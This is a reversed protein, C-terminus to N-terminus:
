VAAILKLTRLRIALNRQDESNSGIQAPSILKPFRFQFEWVPNEPIVETSFWANIVAPYGYGLWDKGTEVQTGNLTVDMGVVIEPEMADVIDLQVKYKGSRLSPVKISSVEGPGAWRGDNEPYYWNAGDIERRLDIVVEDPQHEHWFQSQFTLQESEHQGKGAIEQYKLFYNELEEQVQHLQLLLLENEKAMETNQSRLQTLEAASAGVSDQAGKLRAVQDELQQKTKALADEKKKLQSIEANRTDLSHQLKATLKAQEDRDRTLQEVQQQRQALEKTMLELQMKQENALKAQEDRAKTAKELQAQREASLKAQEDRTKTLQSQLKSIEAQATGASTQAEQCQLFYRELEEQVQHLQLLLVENEKAMETNKSRLQTLEVADAEAAVQADKLKAEQEKFQQKAKALAQRCEECEQQLRNAFESQAQLEDTAEAMRTLLDSYERWAHVKEVEPDSCSSFDLDASSELDRYLATAGDCGAILPKMLNCAVASVSSRDISYEAPSADLGLGFAIDAKEVFEVSMHVATSANVLLCRDRNKNYFRLIETNYATWSAIAQDISCDTEAHNRLMQGVALEPASYVLVFRIQPDFLKWFDLLWVTRADAWGWKERALNGAFLDVAMAQWVKGPSLQAGANLGAPDVDHAKLITEHLGEATISERRSPQAEALGAAVLVEYALRYGSHPHGCTLIIKM